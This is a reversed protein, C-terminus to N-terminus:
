FQIHLCKSEESSNGENQLSNVFNKFLIEAEPTLTNQPIGLSLATQYLGARAAEAINEPKFGDESSLNVLQTLKFPDLGIISYNSPTDELWPCYLILKNRLTNQKTLQKGLKSVAFGILISTLAIILASRLLFQRDRSFLTLRQKFSPM